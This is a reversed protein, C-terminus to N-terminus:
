RTSKRLNITEERNWRRSSCSTESPNRNLSCCASDTSATASEARRLCATNSHKSLTWISTMPRTMASTKKKLSNRLANWSISRITWSPIPMLSNTAASSCNLATSSVRIKRIRRPLLPSRWRIVMSSPPSSWHRRSMSKMGINFLMISKKWPILISDM